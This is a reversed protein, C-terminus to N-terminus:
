GGQRAPRCSRVEERQREPGGAECAAVQPVEECGLHSFMGPVHGAALDAVVQLSRALWIM